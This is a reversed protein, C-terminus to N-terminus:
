ALSTDQIVLTTNDRTTGAGGTVNQLVEFSFTETIEKPNDNVSRSAIRLKDMKLCIADDFVGPGDKVVLILGLDDENIFADRINSNEFLVTGQGSVTLIGPFNDPRTQSFAVNPASIDNNLSISLSTITLQDGTFNGGLFRMSGTLSTVLDTSTQGTPTTFYMSENPILDRGVFGFAIQAINNPPMSIQMTNVSMSDGMESKNIEGNWSELFYYDRSQTNFLDPTMMKRGAVRITVSDGAAKAVIGPDPDDLLALTLNLATMSVIRWYKSNNGTAPAAWGTGYIIDGAKFGDTIFSGAARVIHPATASTTLNTLAGTTAPTLDSAGQRLASKIWDKYTSPSLEGVVQAVSSRQGSRMFARQQSSRQEQSGFAPKQLDLNAQVRRIVQAGTAGPLVGYSTAKKYRVERSIGRQIAM